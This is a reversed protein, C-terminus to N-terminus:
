DSATQHQTFEEPSIIYQSRNTFDEEFETIKDTNVVLESVAIRTSDAADPYAIFLQGQEAFLVRDRILVTSGPVKTLAVISVETSRERANQLIKAVRRSAESDLSREELVLMEQINVCRAMAKKSEDHYKPEIRCRERGSGDIYRMTKVLSNRRAKQMAQIRDYLYQGATLPIEGRHTAELDRFARLLMDRAHVHVIGTTDSLVNDFRRAIDGAYRTQEMLQGVVHDFHTKIATVALALLASMVGVTWAITRPVGFSPLILSVVVMAIGGIIEPQALWGRLIGRDKAGISM